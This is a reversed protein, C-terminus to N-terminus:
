PRTQEAIPSASGGRTLLWTVLLSALIAILWPQYSVSRGGGFPDLALAAATGAAIFFAAAAFGGALRVVWWRRVASMRTRIAAGLLLLVPASLVILGRRWLTQRAAAAKDSIARQLLEAASQEATGRSSELTSRAVGNAMGTQTRFYDNAFPTIYGALVAMMALLLVCAALGPFPRERGLGPGFAAALAGYIMVGSPLLAVMRLSLRPFLPPVFIGLQLAAIVVGAVMTWALCRWADRRGLDAGATMALVRTIGPMTRADVALRAFVSEAKAREERWDALTEELARRGCEDPILLASFGASM